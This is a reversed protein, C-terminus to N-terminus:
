EFQIYNSNIEKERIIIGKLSWDTKLNRDRYSYATKKSEAITKNVGFV